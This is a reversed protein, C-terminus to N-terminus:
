PCANTQEPRGSFVVQLTTGDNFSVTRHTRAVARLGEVGAVAVCGDVYTQEDVAAIGGHLLGLTQEHVTALRTPAFLGIGALGLTGVLLLFLAFVVSAGGM